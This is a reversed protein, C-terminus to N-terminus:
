PAFGFWYNFLIKLNKASHPFMYDISRIHFCHFAIYSQIHTIGNKEINRLLENM